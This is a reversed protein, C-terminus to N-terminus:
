FGGQKVLVMGLFVALIGFFVSAAIYLATILYEGKLFLQINETSFASFTTYGGCFGTILFFKLQESLIFQKSSFAILIGIIFCGILNISFTALPFTSSYFKFFVFGTLYRLISGLGGGIGILILTKFM